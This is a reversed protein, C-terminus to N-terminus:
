VFDNMQNESFQSVDDIIDAFDKLYRALKRAEIPTLRQTIVDNERHFSISMTSYQQLPGRIKTCDSCDCDDIDITLASNDKIEKDNVYNAFVTEIMVHGLDHRLV